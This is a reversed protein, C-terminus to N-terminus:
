KIVRLNDTKVRYGGSVMVVNQYLTSTDTIKAMFWDDTRAIEQNEPRIYVGGTAYDFAIVVAGMKIDSPEAIRTQWYHTTWVEKGDKVDMFKGENKTEPTPAQIMKALEVRMWGSEFERDSYFWDDAQIYHMDGSGGGYMGTVGSSSSSIGTNSSLRNADDSMDAINRLASAPGCGAILLVALALLISRVTKM